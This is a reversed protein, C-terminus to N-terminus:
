FGFQLGLSYTKLNPFSGFDLGRQFINGNNFEPDLGTYKTFTLLNQGSISVQANSFGMREVISAPISYALSIYKLRAFSGDELWRDSDGRANLTSAYVIRPFDTDPNEPTWPTVGSRYNSNDDFRDMGSRPGNYVIAGLASFWNMTLEFGKYSAGMNLGVEVDPWPSGVVAKDANTIQGDGNNDKFRIDGPQADPQIITGEANQYSNVEEESQFLGDTELVYWMGIPEGLETVTNGDIHRNLGYGLEVVENNLTTFNATAYYNLAKGAETYSASFEFGTNRITAGNVIPSQSSGSTLLIPYRFLVDETEAIFYDATVELKNNLFSVDLGIDKQTLTEWRLDTNALSVQIAGSETHQDEGIAITSFTNIVPIYDYPGINGSGLKGYSARLKLDSVWALGFFNEESIRWAASVSPFNGWKHDDGLRSSGDRRVVANFLYKDDFSYELRGLYSLLVNHTEFGGTQPENGQDLVDYYGGDPNELLNRKTGWIQAYDEQQFTQGVVINFIHKDFTKDFSLTNEM